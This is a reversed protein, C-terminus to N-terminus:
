GDKVGPARVETLFSDRIRKLNDNLTQMHKLQGDLSIIIRRQSRKETILKIYEVPHQERVRALRMEKTISTTGKPFDSKDLLAAKHGIVDDFAEDATNIKITVRNICDQLWILGKPVAILYRNIEKIGILELTRPDIKLADNVFNRLDLDSKMQDVVSSFTGIYALARELKDTPVPILEGLPKEELVSDPKTLTTM